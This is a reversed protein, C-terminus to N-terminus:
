MKNRPNSVRMAMTLEGEQAGEKGNIQQKGNKKSRNLAQLTLSKAFCATHNGM